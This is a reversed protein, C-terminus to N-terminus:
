SNTRYAGLPALMQFLSSGASLDFYAECRSQMGLVVFAAMAVIVIIILYM